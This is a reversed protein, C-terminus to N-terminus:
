SGKPLQIRINDPFPCGQTITYEDPDFHAGNRCKTRSQVFRRLAESVISTQLLPALVQRFLLFFLVCILGVVNAASGEDDALGLPCLLLHTQGPNAIRLPACAGVLLGYGGVNSSPLM